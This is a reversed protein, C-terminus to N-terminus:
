DQDLNLNNRNTQFLISFYLYHLAVKFSQEIKARHCRILATLFQAALTWGHVTLRHERLRALRFPVLGVYM